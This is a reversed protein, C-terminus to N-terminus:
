ATADAAEQPEVTEAISQFRGERLKGKVTFGRSVCVVRVGGPNALHAELIERQQAHSYGTGIKGMPKGNVDSVDFGSILQEPKASRWVKTVVYVTPETLYKCRVFTDNTVDGGTYPIDIRFFIEGERGQAQQENCLDQKQEASLAEPMETFISNDIRMLKRMLWNALEVRREQRTPHGEGQFYICAFGSFRMVPRVEPKGLEINRAAARAGDQHEMGEADEFWLEGELIFVGFRQVAQRIAFDFQNSPASRLRMSRTQYLRTTEGGFIILKEGERKPHASYDPNNIYYSRPFKADKPQMPAFCGPQFQAPFEPMLGIVPEMPIDDPVTLMSPDPKQGTELEYAKVWFGSAMQAFGMLEAQRALMVVKPFKIGDGYAALYEVAGAFGQHQLGRQVIRTQWREVIEQNPKVAQKSQIYEHFNM